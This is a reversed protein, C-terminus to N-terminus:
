TTGGTSTNSFSDEMVSSASRGAHRAVLRLHADVALGQDQLGSGDGAAGLVHLQALRAGPRPSLEGLRSSSVPRM